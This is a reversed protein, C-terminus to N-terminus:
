DSINEKRLYIWSTLLFSVKALMDALQGTLGGERQHGVKETWAELTEKAIPELKSFPGEVEAYFADYLQRMEKALATMDVEKM